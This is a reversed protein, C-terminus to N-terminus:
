AGALGCRIDELMAGAAAEGESFLERARHFEGAGIHGVRPQIVLDAGKLCTQVHQHTTIYISQLIVNFINHVAAKGAAGPMAELREPLVNVAIVYDAGMQRALSAPVPNTLLGDVLRRGGYTAVAFIVPISISARIAEAVSGQRLVVEEGTDIDTAACAFPISLGAFDLDGGIVQRILNMLRRGAIFGTRPLTLDLLRPLKKWDIQELVLDEIQDASKGRAYLAGILAGASTGAIINIPVGAKELTKLVGAHALGLAAGSGLALGVKKGTALGM